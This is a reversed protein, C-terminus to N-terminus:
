RNRPRGGDHRGKAHAPRREPRRRWLTRGWWVLLVAGAALSLGVAVFSTSMSHVTIHSSALVLNGSPSTLSVTLRFDGTARARMDVYVTNTPYAFAGLCAFASRGASSSVSPARCVAGPSQAAGGPFVVKDGSVRLTGSLAYGSQKVVTVPVKAATSTLRITDTRISLTSLQSQLAAGFASLAAQGQGSRLEADEALLLQDDLQRVVSAGGTGTASAFAALKGRAARLQRVPLATTASPSVARHAPVTVAPVADFLGDLTVPAVVPDAGLADLVVALFSASPTATDGALAVVGRPASANPQEYYVLALDALLRYAALVPTPGSAGALDGALGSDIEMATTTPGRAAGLAFPRTVTLGSGPFAGQAVASPPVVLRGFGLSSLQGMSAGDVAGSAIWTGTSPKLGSLVQQARHVQDALEGGLGNDVLGAADVPVYSTALVERGGGALAALAALAARGRATGTAGLARVTAPGPVLTVPAAAHAAVTALLSALADAQGAPLAAGAPVGVATAAPADVPLVLSVRLKETTAPPNAYVLYTTFSARSTGGSLEVKLPYVGGCNNASCGLRATLPGAPATADGSSVPLVADVGGAPDAPLTAVDVSTSWLVIGTETGNATQAFASRTTLRSFLTLGLTLSSRPLDGVALHLTMPQGPGVWPTQSVLGLAPANRGGSSASGAAAAPLAPGLAVVACALATALASALASAPRGM